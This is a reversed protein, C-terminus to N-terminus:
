WTKPYSTLFVLNRIYHNIFCKYMILYSINKHIVFLILYHLIIKKILELIKTIDQIIPRLVTFIIKYKIFIQLEIINKM